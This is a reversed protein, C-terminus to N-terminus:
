TNLHSEEAVCDGRDWGLCSFILENILHLRTTAENRTPGSANAAFWEILAALHKEAQEFSVAM